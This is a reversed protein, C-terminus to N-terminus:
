ADILANTHFTQQCRTANHRKPPASTNDPHAHQSVAPLPVAIVSVPVQAGPACFDKCEEFNLTNVSLSRPHRSEKLEMCWWPCCAVPTAPQMVVTVTVDAHVTRAALM